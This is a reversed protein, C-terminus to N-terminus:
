TDIARTKDDMAKPNLPWTRTAKFGSKINKKTLTQELDKDVWRTLTCKELECYWQM